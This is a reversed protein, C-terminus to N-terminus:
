EDNGSAEQRGPESAIRQEIGLLMQSLVAKLEIADSPHLIVASRFHSSGTAPNQELFALRVGPSGITIIFRNAGPASGRFAEALEDRSIAREAKADESM